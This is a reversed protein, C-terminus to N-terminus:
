YTDGVTIGLPLVQGADDYEPLSELEEETVTNLLLDDGVMEFRDLPIAVSHEGLGLFGGVGVIAMLQGGGAVLRDIEGVDEGSASLVDLGVLDSVRVDAFAAYLGAADPSVDFDVDADTVVINPDDQEEVVINAEAQEVNIDAGEPQDIMVQPEAESVVVNGEGETEIAVEAEAQEVAVAAAEARNVRVQPEASTVQVNPESEEITIRPEPRVFRVIPEPQAVVVEPQATAVNVDPEPMRVTITPEPIVVTVEPQAQEITIIPAQQEVTVTPEAVTVVIEPEAQEVLVEPRAQDVTVTPDAVTVDVQADPQEVVIQGGMAGATATTTEVMDTDMLVFGAMEVTMVAGDAGMVPQGEMDVIRGEADAYLPNGASDLAPQGAEDMLANELYSDSFETNGDLDATQAFAPAAFLAVAAVSSLLM